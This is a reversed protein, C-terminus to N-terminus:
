DVKKAVIESSYEVNILTLREEMLPVSPDEPDNIVTWIQYLKGPIEESM